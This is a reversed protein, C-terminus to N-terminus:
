QRVQIQHLRVAVRRAICRESLLLLPSHYRSMGPPLMEAGNTAFFLDQSTGLAVECLLLLGTNNKPSTFCYNAGKSVLDVFYVGKGFMYGTAPSEPPPIRLGQSLIGAFSTLHAGYWLMMRNGLAKKYRAEEGERKVTFLSELTLSYGTHTPAHTNKMYSDILQWEMSDRAVENIECNLAKYSADIINGGKVESEQLIRMAVAIERLSELLALKKKIAAENDLVCESIKKFGFDHPTITYFESSLEVIRKSEGKEVAESLGNLIEYGKKIM